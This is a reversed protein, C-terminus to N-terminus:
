KLMNRLHQTSESPNNLFDCTIDLVHNLNRPPNFNNKNKVLSQNINSDTESENLTEENEYYFYEKLRLKRTFDHLDTKLEITNAKPTPTFKLGRNLLNIQNLTM